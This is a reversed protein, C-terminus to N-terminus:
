EQDQEHEHEYDFDFLFWCVSLTWREVSLTWNLFEHLAFAGRM